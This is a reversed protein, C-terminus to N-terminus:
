NKPVKEIYYPSNLTDPSPVTLPDGKAKKGFVSISVYRKPNVRIDDLLLNLKNGTSALNQYLTPDNILKGLTGDKSDVTNVIKKLSTITSDLSNLTKQFDLQSLKTTTKDLNTMVSTVKENNAALNGTVSNVNQMTKALVGTESNLLKELYATSTIMSSTITKLNEFTSGINGKTRPDIVSNINIILTDLSSVAKQVEFLVPNVKKLIDNFVGANAETFISDGSNLNVKSDGLRIEVSTTGIPNPKIMAVSNNPINIDKTINFEVKIRSMDKDTSIKYVTGVQLGNIVVPNSNQLGQVNGYVGYLTTSKSFLKKGKLFNFGLILLTVSVVAIAGVKTENSIKM